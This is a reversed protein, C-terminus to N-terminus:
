DYYRRHRVRDFALKSGGLLGFGDYADLDMFSTVFDFAEDYSFCKKLRGGPNSAVEEALGLTTSIVVKNHSYAAYFHKHWKGM